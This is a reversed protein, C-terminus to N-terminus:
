PAGDPAATLAEALWDSLWQTGDVEVGDVTVGWHLHPGTSFGTSGVSGLRQGAQVRDGLTVDLRDLHSYSSAVGQGHHVIITKGYVPEERALVVFGDASAHVPTGRVNAYDIGEHHKKLGGWYTRVKGFASTRRGEVPRLMAGSWLQTPLHFRAARLRDDKLRALHALWEQDPNPDPRLDIYGGQPFDTPLVETTQEHVVTNGARDTARIQLTVPGEPQEVGVGVLGRWGGDQQPYLPLPRELLTADLDVVPEDAAVFVAAARGQQLPTLRVSLTPPSNDVLLGITRSSTNRLLSRDTAAVTLVHLGDELRTTDIALTGQAVPVPRGDLLAALEVEQRDRVEVQVRVKGRQPGQPATLTIEPPERDFPATIKSVISLLLVLAALPTLM